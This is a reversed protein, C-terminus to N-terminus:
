KIDAADAAEAVAVVVIRNEGVATIALKGVTEIEVSTNFIDRAEQM